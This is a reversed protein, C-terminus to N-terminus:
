EQLCETEGVEYELLVDEGIASVNTLKLAIADSINKIGLGEVPSLSEKGGFIKAGIYIHLKRVIGQELASYNLTGGGELLISDIGLEGLQQMLDELDLKSDRIKTELVRIGLAELQTKKTNRCVGSAGSADGSAASVWNLSATAPAQGQGSDRERCGYGCAASAKRTSQVHRQASCPTRATAVITPVTRATQVIRSDLPIRLSTDCIIRVPNRGETKRKGTEMEAAGGPLRDAARDSLRCTLLPDDALVTGTGVMIASLEGRTRHTSTRALEGTIWQSQGGSTAIKGDASMAYKMVVYPKKTRTYYFFIENLDRCEKELIGTEVEIGHAKLIEIGKGSVLANPDICGIVVKSIKSAIIADTCPATKGHHCCPELTVYLTAGAADSSCCASLAEIEAHAGGYKAHFGQGIIREDKVIVAGVMPNPNVRGKGKAALELAIQMYKEYMAFSM